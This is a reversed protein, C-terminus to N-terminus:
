PTAAASWPGSGLAAIAPEDRSARALRESDTLFRAAVALCEEAHIRRPALSGDARQALQGMMRDSCAASRQDYLGLAHGLEHALTEALREGEACRRLAGARDRAFSFLRIVRGSFAACVGAGSAATGEIWRVDLTRDGQGIVFRPREPAACPAENWLAAARAVVGDLRSPLDVARLAITSIADVREARAVACVAPAPEGLAPAAGVVLWWSLKSWRRNKAM